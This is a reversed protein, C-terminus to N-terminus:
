IFSPIGPAPNAASSYHLFFVIIKDSLQIKNQAYKLAYVHIHMCTHRYTLMCRYPHTCAGEVGKGLRTRSFPLPNINESDTM